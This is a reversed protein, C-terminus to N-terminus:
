TSFKRNYVFAAAFFGGSALAMACGVKDFLPEFAQKSQSEEPSVRVSGTCIITRTGVYSAAVTLAGGVALFVFGVVCLILVFKKM